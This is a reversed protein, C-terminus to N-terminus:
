AAKRENKEATEIAALLEAVLQHSEAISLKMWDSPFEILIPYREDATYYSARPLDTM